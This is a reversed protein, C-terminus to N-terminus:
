KQWTYFKGRHTAWAEVGFEKIKGLNDLLADGTFPKLFDLKECERYQSCEWCSEFSKNKVCVSIRCAGVCGNGGMRCPVQCPLRSVHALLSIMTDYHEFEPIQSRKLRAYESFNTKELEELLNKALGSARSKYRICDGCYLGCYGTLDRDTM